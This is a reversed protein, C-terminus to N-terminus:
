GAAAGSLTGPGAHAAHWQRLEAALQPNIEFVDLQAAPVMRSLLQRTLVGDGAGLEAVRLSSDWEVANCMCRCLAASSPTVSGITRPDRIFQQVFNAKARMLMMASALM